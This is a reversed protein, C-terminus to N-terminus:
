VPKSRLRWLKHKRYSTIKCTPTPLLYAIIPRSETAYTKRSPAFSVVHEVDFGKEEEEGHQVEARIM